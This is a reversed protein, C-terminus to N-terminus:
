ETSADLTHGLSLKRTWIGPPPPTPAQLRRLNSGQGASSSPGRRGPHSGPYRRPRPFNSRHTKGAYKVKHTGLEGEGAAYVLMGSPLDAATCYALMQYIDAHEFGEGDTRKYKADGVFLPRSGNGDTGGSPWWSFDPKMGVHGGEDLTLGAEHRWQGDPLGLAEGLAVYLFREFVKNMDLFFAAGRSRGARSNWAQTKSSSVLLSWRRATTSTWGPIAFKPCPEM